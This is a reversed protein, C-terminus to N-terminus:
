LVFRIVLFGFSIIIMGLTIVTVTRTVLGEYEPAVHDMLISVMWGGDLGKVPLLNATGIFLNLMMVYLLLQGFTLLAILFDPFGASFGLRGRQLGDDQEAQRQKLEQELAPIRENARDDLTDATDRIWMWRGIARHEDVGQGIRLRQEIREAQRIYSEYRDITGPRREELRVLLHDVPAPQYQIASLNTGNRGQDNFPYAAVTATFEEGNLTRLTVTRGVGWDSTARQYAQFSYTENGDIHTIRMGQELGARDAPSGNVVETVEVGNPMDFDMMEVGANGGMLVGVLLLALTVNAWPGAALVRLRALWNGQDWPSHQEEDPEPEFFDRQGAPQVFAGPIIGLLILGVYEIDFDEARAIVGHMMEHVVLVVTISILFYWFPIGMYGTEMPNTFTSATPLVPAVPVMTDPVLFLKLTQYLVLVFMLIMFGFGAVVGLTAWHRWVQRNIRATRDLIDIGKQTRRVFVISYREINERDRWLVAAASLLFVIISLINPDTLFGPVSVAM